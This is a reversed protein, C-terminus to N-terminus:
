KEEHYDEAQNIAFPNGGVGAILRAAEWGTEIAHDINHYRFMGTRGAIVANDLEGVIRHLRGAHQLYDLTYTPYAHPWRDVRGSILSKPPVLRLDALTHATLDLLAQDDMRWHEDGPSAFYEAVVGTTGHPAMDRSWNKPEHLRGFPISRDHVYIWHSRTMRPVNLQVFVTILGRWRLSNVARRGAQPDVWSATQTLPNTFVFSDGPWSRRRSDVVAEVRNGNLTLGTTDVDCHVTGGATEVERVMAESLAGIGRRPYLFSDVLTTPRNRNLGLANKIAVALDLGKIRQSAWDASLASCPIGWVKTTYEEFFRRYLERGFGAVMWEEFSNRPLPSITDKLRFYLFSALARASRVPGMGALANWPSLPYDFFEGNYLIHSVRNVTVVEGKLMAGFFEQVAESRTFFRHGGIDFLCDRHRLTASLGGPEAEKELVTVKFDHRTLELAAALGAPGAGVVM